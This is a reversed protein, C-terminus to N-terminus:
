SISCQEQQTKHQEATALVDVAGTFISMKRRVEEGKLMANIVAKVLYTATSGALGTDELQYFPTLDEKNSIM